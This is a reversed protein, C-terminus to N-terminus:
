SHVDYKVGQELTETTLHMFNLSIIDAERSLNVRMEGTVTIGLFSLLM